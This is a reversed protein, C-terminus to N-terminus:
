CDFRLAILWCNDDVSVDEGMIRVTRVLGLLEHFAVSTSSALSSDVDAHLDLVIASSFNKTFHAFM